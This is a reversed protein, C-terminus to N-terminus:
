FSRDTRKKKKRESSSEGEALEEASYTGEQAEGVPMDYMGYAMMPNMGQMAAMGQMQAMQFPDAYGTPVGYASPFMGAVQQYGLGMADAPPAMAAMTQSQPGMQAVAEQQQQQQQPASPPSWGRGALGSIYSQDGRDLPSWMGYTVNSAWAKNKPYGAATLTKTAAKSASHGKAHSM